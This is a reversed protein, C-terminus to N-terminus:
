PQRARVDRRLLSYMLQDHWADERWQAQRLMGERTLGARDLLRQASITAVDTVAQIRHAVTHDFLYGTLLEVCRTSYRHAREGAHIHLAIEWCWSTEAPGWVRRFWYASGVVRDDVTATLRGGRADLAGNERMM